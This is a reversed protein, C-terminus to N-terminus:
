WPLPEGDRSLYTGSDSPGLRTVTALQSGVSEEVTLDASWSTMDTRVFGPSMAVVVTGQEALDGALHVTAMNLAAKSMRYGYSRGYPDAGSAAIALSGLRSSVNVVVAREGKALAPAFAQTVIVPAVANVRIVEALEDADIAALPGISADSGPRARDVGANNVLLDLGGWTDVVLAAVRRVDEASTVDLREVGVGAGAGAGAVAALGSSTEPRRACAVVVWGAARLQRVWELGLGRGAGTVVARRATSGPEPVPM